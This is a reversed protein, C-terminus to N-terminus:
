RRKHGSQYIDCAEDYVKGHSKDEEGAGQQLILPRIQKILKLIQRFYVEAMTRWARTSYKLVSGAALQTRSLPPAM